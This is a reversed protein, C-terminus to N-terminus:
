FCKAEAEVQAARLKDVMAVAWPSTRYMGVRPDGGPAQQLRLVTEAEVYEDYSLREAIHDISCACRRLADPTQGNTAMCAFVYDALAETPYGPPAAQAAAGGLWAAVALVIGRRRM